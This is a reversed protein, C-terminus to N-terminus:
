FGLQISSCVHAAKHKVEVKESCGRGKINPPFFDAFFILFLFGFFFGSFFFRSFFTSRNPMESNFIQLNVQSLAELVPILDLLESDQPDEFWSSIPLANEPQFMYSLPSNDLIIVDRIDRGLRTMDKVYSGVHMTCSERFLRHKVLKHPDLVDMVADAYKSLSATFIVLEYIEAM